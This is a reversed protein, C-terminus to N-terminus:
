STGAAAVFLQTLWTADSPTAFTTLRRGSCRCSSIESLMLGLALPWLKLPTHEALLIIKSCEPIGCVRRPYGGLRLVHSKTMNPRLGSIEDYVNTMDLAMHLSASDESYLTSDDAYARVVLAESGSLPLRRVNSNGLVAM